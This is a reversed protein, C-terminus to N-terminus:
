AVAGALAGQIIWADAGRKTLAAGAWQGTLAVSGGLTGNLSVGSATTITAAGIGVQTINILTGIEFPVSAEAPITVAVASSGTAEIISGTDSIELTHATATLTRITVIGPRPVEIWAGGSFRVHLVEDTIWVQWGEQPTLFVWSPTGGVEDWLAIANANAGAAAPVILIQGASGTTPLPTNRSTAPAQLLASIRRLDESLSTGWNRQGPDYFARLGLGPMIREPM